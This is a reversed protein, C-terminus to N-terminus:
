FVPMGERDLKLQWYGDRISFFCLLPMCPCPQDEAFPFFVQTIEDSRRCLGAPLPLGAATGQWPEMPSVTFFGAKPPLEPWGDCSLRRELELRGDVPQPVGVCRVGAYLRLVRDTMDCSCRLRWYLGERQLCCSGITSAGDRVLFQLM